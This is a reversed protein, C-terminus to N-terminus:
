KNYVKSELQSLRHGVAAWPMLTLRKAKTKEEMVKATTYTAGLVCGVLLRTFSIVRGIAGNIDM